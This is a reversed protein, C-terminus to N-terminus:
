ALIDIRQAYMCGFINFIDQALEFVTRKIITGSPGIGLLFGKFFYLIYVDKPSLEIPLLTDLHVNSSFGIAANPNKEMCYYMAGLTWPYLMDDSDLYKLYTGKAYSAVKNRNAYDGINKDNVFLKIRDDKQLYTQIIEVTKDSSADDSIILEWNHFTSSLVSEIANAIFKERNFSTMLISIM